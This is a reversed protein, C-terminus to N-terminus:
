ILEVHFKTNNYVIEDFNIFVLCINFDKRETKTPKNRRKRNEERKQTYTQSTAAIIQTEIQPNLYVSLFFCFPISYFLQITNELAM